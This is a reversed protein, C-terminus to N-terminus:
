KEEWAIDNWNPAKINIASLCDQFDKPPPAMFTRTIGTTPHKFSLRFAHLMQRSFGGREGGYISDGLVPHKIYAMHVRIQHTRGTELKLHLLSAKEGCSLSRFHTIAKRGTEPQVAMKKRAVIHRGVPADIKGDGELIGRVIALYERGLKRSKLQKVLARFALDSKAIALLGSTDKDLRHVMGPRLVGGVGEIEPCHAILANMLTKDPNGAGPHVVLGAPKNVVLVQRDEFVVDLPLPQAEMHSKELPPIMVTFSEGEKILLSPKLEKPRADSTVNGKKIWDHIHTRSVDPMQATLFVDLRKGAFEPPVAFTAEKLKIPISSM